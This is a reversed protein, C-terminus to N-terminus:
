RDHRGHEIAGAVAAILIAPIALVVALVYLPAALAWRLRDPM